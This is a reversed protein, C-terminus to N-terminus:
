SYMGIMDRLEEIGISDSHNSLIDFAVKLHQKTIM